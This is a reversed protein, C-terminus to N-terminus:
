YLTDKYATVITVSYCNISVGPKGKELLCIYEEYFLTTVCFHYIQEKRKDLVLFGGLTLYSYHAARAM